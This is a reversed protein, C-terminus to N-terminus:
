ITLSNEEKLRAAQKVLRSLVFFVISIAFGVFLILLSALVIAPHSMNWCLLILNGSFFFLVDGAALLAISHLLSANQYCFSNDKGINRAIKLGCVLIALCPLATLSLFLLWPFYWGSFEPYLFALRGGFYPVAFGYVAVLCCFVGALVALLLRSLQKQEM